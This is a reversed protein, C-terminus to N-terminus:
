IVFILVQVKFEQIMKRPEIYVFGSLLSSTILINLLRDDQSILLDKSHWSLMINSIQHLCSLVLDIRVFADLLHAIV